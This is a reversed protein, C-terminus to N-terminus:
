TTISWNKNPIRPDEEDVKIANSSKRYYIGQVLKIMQEPIGAIQM